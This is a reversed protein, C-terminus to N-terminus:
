RITVEMTKVGFNLAEQHTPFRLDIRIQDGRKMASGTDDAEFTGYGPITVM